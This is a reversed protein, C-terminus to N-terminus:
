LSCSSQMGTVEYRGRKLMETRGATRQIGGVIKPEKRKPDAESKIRTDNRREWRNKSIGRGIPRITKAHNNFNIGSAAYAERKKEKDLGKQTLDGPSRRGYEAGSRKQNRLIQTQFLLLKLLASRVEKPEGTLSGPGKGRSEARAALQEKLVKGADDQGRRNKKWKLNPTRDQM